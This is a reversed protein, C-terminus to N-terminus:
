NEDKVSVSDESDIKLFGVILSLWILGALTIV